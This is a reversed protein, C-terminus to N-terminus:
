LSVPFQFKRGTTFKLTTHFEDHGQTQAVHWLYAVASVVVNNKAGVINVELHEENKSEPVLQGEKKIENINVERTLSESSSKEYIVESKPSSM